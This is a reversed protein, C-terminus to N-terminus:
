RQQCLTILCCGCQRRRSWFCLVCSHKWDKSHLLAPLIPRFHHENIGETLFVWCVLCFFVKLSNCFSTSCVNALESSKPDVPLHFSASSQHNAPNISVSTVTRAWGDVFAPVTIDVLWTKALTLMSALSRRVSMLTQLISVCLSHVLSGLLQESAGDGLASGRRVVCHFSSSSPQVDPNLSSRQSGATKQKQQHRFDRESM